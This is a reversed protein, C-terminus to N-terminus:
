FALQTRFLIVHEAPRPGTAPGEFATREFTCYYKIYPTLYWNAAVTWSRAQRSASAAALGETFTAPDITLASYRALVQVAGWQRNAPDFPKKPRITGASAAEGTLLLSATVGLADNTITRETGTRTVEQASRTYEAFGGFAKYHYFVAPALRTRRGSATAGAGYNFFTQGVSTTFSPLPGSQPGASAGLHFGLGNIARNPTRTSRWPAVAIRGALDKSSNTDVDTTSNTADPVGNFLGAAYTVRNGALDGQVQVGIDRGPILRSAMSREPFPLFADGILLEYGVPTKDKGTRVRLRPSFRIDVYADLLVTTGGGFDPMVKFDFYRGVRGSLVPRAKRIAFTNTIPSPDDVSFRGDMQAVLGFVLRHDGNATQVFFGDQFGATPAAPAQAPATAPTAPMPPQSGSPGTQAHVGSAGLLVAILLGHCFDRQM